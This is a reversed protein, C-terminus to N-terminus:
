SMVRAAVSAAAALAPLPLARLWDARAAGRHGLDPMAGTYGRALMAAYAREGREYSRMFLTGASAAIPKAQWLLRPNYARATMATRMRTLEGAIVELYRIMFGAIATLAAPARLRAMGRLIDPAETTAALLIASGAGLVAKAIINWAGWVGERSVAAGLVDIREGSATFPILLAFLVFPLVTLLRAAVFRPPARGVVLAAGLILAHAGFAWVAQRPTSATAAVFLAAAVIKVEAPMRHIATHDHIYLAHTHGAGM